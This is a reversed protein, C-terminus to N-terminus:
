MWVGDKAIMGAKVAAAQLYVCRFPEPASGPEVCQGEFIAEIELMPKESLIIREAVVSCVGCTIKLGVPIAWKPFGVV